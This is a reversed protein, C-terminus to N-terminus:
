SYSYNVYTITVFVSPLSNEPPYFAKIIEYRDDEIAAKELLSYNKLCGAYTDEGSSVTVLVAVLLIILVNPILKAM